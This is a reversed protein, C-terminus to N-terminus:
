NKTNYGNEVCNYFDIWYHERANLESETCSEIIEFHAIEPTVNSYFKTNDAKDVGIMKKIHTSWRDRIKKAQGVYSRCFGTDDITFIRYIGCVDSKLLDTTMAQFKPQWIKQWIIQNFNDALSPYNTKLMILTECLQQEYPSIEMIRGINEDVQRKTAEKHQAALSKLAQELTASEDKIKLIAIKAQTLEQAFEFIKDLTTNIEINKNIYEETLTDLQKSMNVRKNNIEEYETQAKGTINILTTLQHEYQKIQNQLQISEKPENERKDHLEASQKVYANYLQNYNNSLKDINQQLKVIYIIFIINCVLAIVFLIWGAM